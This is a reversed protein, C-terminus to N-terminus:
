NFLSLHVWADGHERAKKAEAWNEKTLKIPGCCLAASENAGDPPGVSQNRSAYIKAAKAYSGAVVLQWTAHRAHRLLFFTQM